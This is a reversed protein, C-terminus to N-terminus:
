NPNSTFYLAVKGLEENINHNDVPFTIKKQEIFLKAQNQLLPPSTCIASLIFIEQTYSFVDDPSIHAVKFM